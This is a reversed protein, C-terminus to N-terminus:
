GSKQSLEFHSVGDHRGRLWGGKEFLYEIWTRIFASTNAANAGGPTQQALLTPMALRYSAPVLNVATMKITSRRVWGTDGYLRLKSPSWQIGTAVAAADSMAQIAQDHVSRAAVLREEANPYANEAVIRFAYADKGHRLVIRTNPTRSTIHHPAPQSARKRKQQLGVGEHDEDDEVPQPQRAAVAISAPVNGAAPRVTGDPRVAANIYGTVAAAVTGPPRVGTTPNPHTTAM